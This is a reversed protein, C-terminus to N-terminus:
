SREALWIALQRLVVLAMFLNVTAVWVFHMLTLSCTKWQLTSTDDKLRIIGKEYAVIRGKIPRPNPDIEGSFLTKAIWRMLPSDIFVAFIVGWGLWLGFMWRVTLPLGLGMGIAFGFAAFVIAIFLWFIVRFVNM